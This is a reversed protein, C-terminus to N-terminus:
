PTGLGYMHTLSVLEKKNSATSRSPSLRTYRKILGYWPPLGALELGDGAAESSVGNILYLAPYVENDGNPAFPYVYM